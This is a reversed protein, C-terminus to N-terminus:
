KKKPYPFPMNDRELTEEYIRQYGTLLHVLEDAADALDPVNSQHSLRAVVQASIVLNCLSDGQILVGPFKRGPHRIVPSNVAESFIEMEIKRM